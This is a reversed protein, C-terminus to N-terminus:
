LNAPRSILPLYVPPQSKIEVTATASTKQMQNGWLLASTYYSGALDYICAVQQDKPIYYQPGYYSGCNFDYYDWAGDWEVKFWVPEWPHPNATLQTIKPPAIPKGEKLAAFVNELEELPDEFAPKAPTYESEVAAIADELAKKQRDAVAAPPPPNIAALKASVTARAKEYVRARVEPTTEGLGDLTKRLVAVFDAM